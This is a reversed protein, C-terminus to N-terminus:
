VVTVFERLWPMSRGRLSLFLFGVTGSSNQHIGPLCQEEVEGADQHHYRQNGTQSCNYRSWQPFHARFLCHLGGRSHVSGGQGQRNIKKM